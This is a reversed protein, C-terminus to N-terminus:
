DRAARRLLREAAEAALVRGLASDRAQEVLRVPAEAAAPLLAALGWARRTVELERQLTRAAEPESASRRLALWGPGRPDGLIEFGPGAALGPVADHLLRADLARPRWGARWGEARMARQLAELDLGAPEADPNPALRYRLRPM